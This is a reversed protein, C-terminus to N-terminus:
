GLLRKRLRLFRDKQGTKELVGVAFDRLSVPSSKWSDEAITRYGWFQRLNQRLFNQRYVPQDGDKESVNIVPDLISRWFDPVMFANYISWHGIDRCEAGEFLVPTGPGILFEAEKGFYKAEIGTSSSLTVIGSLNPDALISYINASTRQIEQINDQLKFYIDHRKSLPHDKYFVMGRGSLASTIRKSLEDSDLIRGDEILSRDVQSQAAFLIYDVDRQYPQKQEFFAWVARASRYVHREAMSYKSIEMDVEPHNSRIGFFIDDMFRVPHVVVDIWVGGAASIADRLSQPM